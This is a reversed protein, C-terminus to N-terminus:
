SWRHYRCSSNSYAGLGRLALFNERCISGHSISIINSIQLPEEKFITSGECRNYITRHRVPALIRQVRWFREAKYCCLGRLLCWQFGHSKKYRANIKRCNNIPLLTDFTYPRQQWKWHQKCFCCAAILRKPAQTLAYTTYIPLGSCPAHFYTM